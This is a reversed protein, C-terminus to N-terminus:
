RGEKEIVQENVVNSGLQYRKRIIPFMREIGAEVDMCAKWGIEREIKSCDLINNLVQGKGIEHESYHMKIGTVREIMECIEFISTGKGSGVNYIGSKMKDCCVQMICTMLDDIYIYDRVYNGDGYIEAQKGLVNCALFTAIIGQGTFPKQYPGFPNAIRLIITNIEHVRNVYMLYEEVMLKQVAYLSIPAAADEERIPLRNCNGYIAGGSSAFIIKQVKKEVCAEILVMTGVINNEVLNRGMDMFTAPVGQWKLIIVIDNEKLLNRYFDINEEEMRIYIVGNKEKGAEKFDCCIIEADKDCAYEIFSSGIFGNGGIIVIRMNIIMGKELSKVRLGYAYTLYELLSGKWQKRRFNSMM